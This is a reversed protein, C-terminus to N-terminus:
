TSTVNRYGSRVTSVARSPTSLTGSPRSGPSRTRTTFAIFTTTSTRRGEAQTLRLAEVLDPRGAVRAGFSEANPMNFVLGDLGADLLERAKEAVTDPDGELARLAYDEESTAGIVLTGLRTKTIEAPDRGADTCHRELIGLKRRVEVPAGFINSADAYRAVLQLTRREGGGGILIPPGGSSVPRPSNLAEHIRYYRGDFSPREQTFMLRCIQVAEELRDLREGPPPFPFGYAEHEVDHWAAGIGLIARGNSVVDLSTIVKALFAPNRYTVGTVM